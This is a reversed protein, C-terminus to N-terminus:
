RAVVLRGNVTNSFSENYIMFQYIGADLLSADIEFYENTTQMNLVELGSLNLVKIYHLEAKPNYFNVKSNGFVPSPFVEYDNKSVNIVVISVPASQGLGPYTLRYWIKKNLVPNEDQFSYTSPKTLNGCIGGINGIEKFSISDESKEINIGLCVSGSSMIWDLYVIGDRHQINFKDLKPTFQASLSTFHVLIIALVSLKLNNSKM